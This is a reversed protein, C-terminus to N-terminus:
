EYIYERAEPDYYCGEYQQWLYESWMGFHALPDTLFSGECSFCRVGDDTVTLEIRHEEGNIQVSYILEYFSGHKDIGIYRCEGIGGAEELLEAAQCFHALGDEEMNALTEESFQWEQRWDDRISEIDIYGYAEEYERAQLRDMFANAIYREHLNTFHLGEGRIQNWGLICGPLLVVVLLISAWWRRRIKRFSNVIARETGPLEPMPVSRSNELLKRCMECTRLHEAVAQRSQESCVGDEYLPLLDEVIECSLKM